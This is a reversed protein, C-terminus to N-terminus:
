PNILIVFFIHKGQAEEVLSSEHIVVFKDSEGCRSSNEAKFNKV